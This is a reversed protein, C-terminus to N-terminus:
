DDDATARATVDSGDAGRLQADGSDQNFAILEAASAEVDATNWGFREDMSGLFKFFGLM